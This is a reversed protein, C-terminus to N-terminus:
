HCGPLGVPKGLMLKWDIWVDGHESWARCLKGLLTSKGSGQLFRKNTVVVMGKRCRTLAVNTRPLSKLFGPVRTRVSSLIVFDSENGQYSDVNYVCGSPLNEAKLAKTIAARQPDYFTIICFNLKLRHYQKAVRVVMHVEEMNSAKYSSAQKVEKGKNVDIFVVCSHDLIDHKSLLKGGYVTQSIFQQKPDGFFCVKMLVHSFKYFLHMFEFVDIQSAEDIVLSRVPILDFLGCEDLKPNSLMSITSLILNIDPFMRKTEQHDKPLQDSPIVVKNMEKYMEEHWGFLFEKSVLLRFKVNRKFLTEAINKVGVNSQAIIWCPTQSRGM